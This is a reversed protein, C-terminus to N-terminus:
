ASAFATASTVAPAVSVPRWAAWLLLALAVVGVAATNWNIAGINAAISMVLDPLAHGETKIGLLGGVEAGTVRSGLAAIRMSPPPKDRKAYAQEVVPGLLTRFAAINADVAVGNLSIAEEVSAPAVPVVGPPVSGNM